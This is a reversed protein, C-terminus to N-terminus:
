NEDGEQNAFVGPNAIYKEINVIICPTKDEEFYDETVSPFNVTGANTLKKGMINLMENCIDACYTEPKTFTGGVVHGESKSVKFLILEKTERDIEIAIGESGVSDKGVSEKSIGLKNLIGSTFTLKRGAVMSVAANGSITSKYRKKNKSIAM